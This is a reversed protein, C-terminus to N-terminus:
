SAPRMDRQHNYQVVVTGMYECCPECAFVPASMGGVEVPGIWVVMQDPRRCLLCFGPVLPRRTM